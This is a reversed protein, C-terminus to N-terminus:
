ELPIRFEWPGEWYKALGIREILFTLTRTGKPVPDLPPQHLVPEGSWSIGAGQPREGSTNSESGKWPGDDFRYRADASLIYGPVNPYPPNQSQPAIYPKQLPQYEQWQVSAYVNMGLTSLEVRTLTVTVGNM